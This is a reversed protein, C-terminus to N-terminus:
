RLILGRNRDGDAELGVGGDIVDSDVKAVATTDEDL